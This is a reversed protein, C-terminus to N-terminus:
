RPIAPIQDKGIFAMWDSEFKALDVGEFAAKVAKDDEKTKLLTEFYTALIKEYPHGKPLGRKLFYIISWGEAYCLDANAYYQAQSYKIIDKIPVHTKQGIASKIGDVRWKFKKIVANPGDFTAGAYYDGFGENYWSHPSLEGFCYYIYQHFAEHNLVSLVFDKQGEMYMVLEKQMPSWYGASGQPAGYNLYEERNKCIRVISVAEIKQPPPFDKEYQRRIKKLRSMIELIMEEKAQPLSTLVVYNESEKFWWGATTRKTIEATRLAKERESLKALAEEDEAAEIEKAALLRMSKVVDTYMPLLKERSPEGGTFELVIQRDALDYVAALYWFRAPLGV